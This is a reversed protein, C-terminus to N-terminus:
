ASQGALGETIWGQWRQMKEVYAGQSMAAIDANGVDSLGVFTYTVQVRTAGYGADSCRVHVRAVYRGAEVRHYEVEQRERDLATVVWIADGREERTRFILGREWEVGPPHVLEPDWGPVWRKEGVPSFLPFAAAPPLPLTFSGSLEISRAEFMGHGRREQTANRSLELIAIGRGDLTV